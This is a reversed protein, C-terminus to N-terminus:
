KRKNAAPLIRVKLFITLIPINLSITKCGDHSRRTLIDTPIFRPSCGTTEM